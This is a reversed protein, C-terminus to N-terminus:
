KNMNGFEKEMYPIWMITISRYIAPRLDNVFDWGKIEPDNIFYSDMWNGTMVLVYVAAFLLSILIGVYIYAIGENSGNRLDLM